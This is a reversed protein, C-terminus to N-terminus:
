GASNNYEELQDQLSEVAKTLEEKADGGQIVAEWAEEVAKRAQPMVGASGGQTPKSLETDDLQQVAVDFQPFKKRWKVDEPEDLAETSAPFYGTGTHWTAQNEPQALFQVFQWAAEKEADEHDEGVVFLSAGGIIPGFDNKEIRPYYGVGVEFNGAKAAEQVGGLMGTSELFIGITGSKFADQADTTDRGTNGAVGDDVMKKWWELFTIAPENDFSFKSARESGRGNDPECYLEGSCAIIQEVYWGYIAANFGFEAPGGNKKSLADAAERVEDLTEPAKDPDLGAKDFLTKNYYLVPMSTNFPMSWLKDSVTYYGAINEQIKSVDFDDRDIFSQMPVVVGSDIMFQLGLDYTQVLAPTSGSQVAAKFKAISDDYDGQYVPEISIKGKNEKNFDDALKELTQGNTGDMAHWFTVKVEGDADDLASKDPAKQEGGAGGGASDDGGCAALAFVGAAIGASGAMVQRRAVM